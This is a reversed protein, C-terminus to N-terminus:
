TLPNEAVPDPPNEEEPEAPPRRCNEVLADLDEATAASFGTMQYHRFCANSAFALFSGAFRRRVLPYRAILEVDYHRPDRQLARWLAEVAAPPGEFYEVFAHDLYILRGTIGAARNARRARDVLLCMHLSGIRNVMKSHYLLGELQPEM